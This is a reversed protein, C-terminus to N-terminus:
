VTTITGNTNVKIAVPKLPLTAPGQLVKFNDAPDFISGHLPCVLKQTDPHYNVAVGQHTCAREAAVFNGNPLHVLLSAQGDTPNAFAVSTNLTQTTTGISKGQAPQAMAPGKTTKPTTPKTQPANNQAKQPATNATNPTPLGKHTLDLATVAGAAVLLGGTALLAVVQRRKASHARNKRNSSTSPQQFAGMAWPDASFNNAPPATERPIRAQETRTPALPAPNEQSWWAFNQMLEQENVDSSPTNSPQHVPERKAAPSPTFDPHGTPPPPPPLRLSPSQNNTGQHITHPNEPLRYAPTPTSTPSFMETHADHPDRTENWLSATREQAASSIIPSATQPTITPIPLEQVPRRVAALKESVLPPQLQWQKKVNQATVQEDNTANPELIGPLTAQTQLVTKQPSAPTKKPTNLKNATTLKQSATSQDFPDASSASTFQDGTGSKNTRKTTPQKEDQYTRQKQTSTLAGQSAQVFAECFENVQKFRQAPEREMAQQVVSSVVLPIAPNIDRILPTPHTIHMYAVNLPNEGSFPPTGTLLEFIICGLSYVDAQADIAQGAVLEPAVYPPAILLTGAISLLHASRQLNQELDAQLMRLLGFGAIQIEGHENSVLMSPRLSGHVIGQNHAYHFGAVIQPLLNSIAAHDHYGLQRFYETISTNQTSPIVMYPIGFLDGHDYLPVINPHHLAKISAAEQHFRALFRQRATPSMSTPISTLVLAAVQQTTTHRVQYITHLRSKGLFLECRYQGIVHGVLQEVSTKQM